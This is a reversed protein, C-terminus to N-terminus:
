ADAPLLEIRYGQERLWDIVGPLIVRLKGISKLSDHFVIISGPRTYKRVIGFVEEPSLRRSYDRTVLDYFVLRYGLRKLRRWQRHSIWGHPPRFFRTPSYPALIRRCMETEEEYQLDDLPLAKVHHFTHNAIQHGAAAVLAATEPYKRVNDGVMFFTAKVQKRALIDLIEPTAQPVPGDDFTLYVTRGDKDVRFLGQPLLARLAEPLREILM